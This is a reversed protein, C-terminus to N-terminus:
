QVEQMLKLDLRDELYEIVRQSKKRGTIVSHVTGRTIGLEDAIQKQTIGKNILAIKIQKSKEINM